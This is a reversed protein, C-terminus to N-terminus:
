SSVSDDTPSHSTRALMQERKGGERDGAGEEKEGGERTGGIAGGRDEVDIGDVGVYEEGASEEDEEYVITEMVGPEHAGRARALPADAAQTVVEIEGSGILEETLELSTNPEFMITPTTSRHISEPSDYLRWGHPRSASARHPALSTEGTAGSQKDLPVTAEEESKNRSPLLPKDMETEVEPSASKSQRRMSPVKAQSGEPTKAESKGSGESPSKGRLEGISGRESSEVSASSERRFDASAVTMSRPLLVSSPQQM